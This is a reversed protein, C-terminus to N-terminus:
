DDSNSSNYRSQTQMNPCPGGWVIGTDDPSNQIETSVFFIGNGNINNLDVGSEWEDQFIFKSNLEIFYLNVSVCVQAIIIRVLLFPAPGRSAILM